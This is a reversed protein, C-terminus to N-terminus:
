GWLRDQHPNSCSLLPTCLHATSAKSCPGQLARSCSPFNGMEERAGGEWGQWEAWKRVSAKHLRCVVSSKEEEVGQEEMGDPTQKGM